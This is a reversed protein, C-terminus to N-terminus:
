FNLIKPVFKAVVRKMGWFNTFIAECSVYTVGLEKAVEKITIRNALVSEKVKKVHEDNCLTSSCGFKADDNIDERGEKFRKYWEYARTQSMTNGSFATQLMKSAESCKIKNKVCFK